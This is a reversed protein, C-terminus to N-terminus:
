EKIEGGMMLEASRSQDNEVGFNGSLFIFSKFLVVDVTLLFIFFGSV